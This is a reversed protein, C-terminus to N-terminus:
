PNPPSEKSPQKLPGFGPFGLESSMSTVILVLFEQMSFVKDKVGCRVVM